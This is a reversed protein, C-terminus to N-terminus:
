HAQSDTIQYFIDTGLQKLFWYCIAMFMWAIRCFDIMKLETNNSITFYTAFLGGLVLKDCSIKLYAENEM